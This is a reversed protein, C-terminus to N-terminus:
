TNFVVLYVITTTPDSTDVLIHQYIIGLKLDNARASGIQFQTAQQPQWWAKDQVWEPTTEFPYALAKASLPEEWTQTAAWAAVDSSPLEFRVHIIQDQWSELHSQLNQAAPPVKFGTLREIQVTTLDDQGSGWDTLMTLQWLGVSGLACLVVLGISGFVILRRWLPRLGRWFSGVM